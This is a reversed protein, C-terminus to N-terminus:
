KRAVFGYLTNVEEQNTMSFLMQHAANSPVDAELPKLPFPRGPHTDPHPKVSIVLLQDRLDLINDESTSPDILFDERPFAPGPETGSYISALDAEKVSTFKGTSYLKDEVVAWGEYRWGSPLEPLTLGTTVPMNSNDIWWVGSTENLEPDNTPTALIYKGAATKFDEGIADPHNFTVIAENSDKFDGALFHVESPAPDTDPYPEITLVYKTANELEQPDVEFTNKSLSGESDVTFTGASVAKSDVILWNEYRFDEGADEINSIELKLTKKQTPTIPHNDKDCATISTFGIIITLFYITKNLM